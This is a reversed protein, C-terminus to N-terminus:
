ELWVATIEFTGTVSCAKMLMMVALYYSGTLASVDLEMSVVGSAGVDYSLNVQPVANSASPSSSHSLNTGNAATYCGTSNLLALYLRRFHYDGYTGGESFTYRGRLCIQSVDTVDIKESSCLYAGCRFASKTSDSQCAASGRLATGDSTMRSLVFPYGQEVTITNGFDAATLGAGWLGNSFIVRPHPLRNHKQRM